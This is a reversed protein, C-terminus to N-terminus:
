GRPAPRELTVWFIGRFDGSEFGTARDDPYLEVLKEQVGPPLNTGHCTLCMPQVFIPEVYGVTDPDIEVTRPVASGSGEVYAALLPEMWPEPANAPNRLRHSSRGVRV